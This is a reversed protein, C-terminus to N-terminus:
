PAGGSGEEPSPETLSGLLDVTSGAIGGAAPGGGGGGSSSSSGAVAAAAPRPVEGGLTQLSLNKYYGSSTRDATPHWNRIM